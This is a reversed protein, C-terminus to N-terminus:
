VSAQNIKIQQKRCPWFFSGCDAIRRVWDSCIQVAHDQMQNGADLVFCAVLAGCALDSSDM